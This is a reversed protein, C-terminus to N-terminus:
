DTLELDIINDGDVVEKRLDTTKMFAYRRPLESRSKEAERAQQASEHMSQEIAKTMEKPGLPEAPTEVDSGSDGGSKKVTITHTGIMAGDNPEYTTLSYNGSEDTTGVALRPAGPCLYVVTAGAVAKGNYTVKGQVPAIAPRGSGSCGGLLCGVVFLGVVRLRWGMEIRSWPKVTADTAWVNIIETIL